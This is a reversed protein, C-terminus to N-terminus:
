KVETSSAETEPVATATTGSLNQKKLRGLMALAIIVLTIYRIDSDTLSNQFRAPLNMYIINVLGAVSMAIMSMMKYSDRWEEVLHTDATEVAKDKVTTAAGGITSLLQQISGLLQGLTELNM